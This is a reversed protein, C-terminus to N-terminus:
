DRDRNGFLLVLRLLQALSVALAAVYTMAAAKLVKEVGYLEDDTFSGSIALADVARNSANLEVPLTVFQFLAVSGFLILGINILPQSNMFFGILIMPWSITSGIQCVPLVAGRLRIPTYGLAYQVAHGAEHAAVGVAAISPSSYVGDSLRIVNAKPDYHDTLNGAVREIHVHRLGNADLIRRAAEFGTMRSYTTHRSYENYTSNVKSQAWMSFIVAPIVLIFYYIDYRYFLM